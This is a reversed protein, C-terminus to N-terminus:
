ARSKTPDSVTPNLARTRAEVADVEAQAAAIEM